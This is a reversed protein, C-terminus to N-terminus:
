LASVEDGITKVNGQVLGGNPKFGMVNVKDGVPLVAYFISGGGPAGSVLFCPNAKIFANLGSITDVKRSDASLYRIYYASMSTDDLTGVIEHLYLRSGGGGSGNEAYVSLDQATGDTYYVRIKTVTQNGAVENSINSIERIGKGNEAVVSFEGTTGDTYHVRVTTYTQTGVIEDSVDEFRSVGKGDNGNEAAVSIDETTGDTYHARVTTLTQTGVIANNIDELSSIGKGAIGDKGAKGDKGNEAAVSFDDSTGDTYHVRLTTLTQTGVIEDSVKEIGSIDKPFNLPSSTVTSGDAFKFEFVFKNDETTKIAVDELSANELAKEVIKLWQLLTLKDDFSSLITKWDIM